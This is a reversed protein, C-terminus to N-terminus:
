TRFFKSKSGNCGKIVFACNLIKQSLFLALVFDIERFFPSQNLIFEM